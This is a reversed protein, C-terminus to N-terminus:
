LIGLIIKSKWLCIRSLHTLNGFSSLLWMETWRLVCLWAQYHEDRGKCWIEAIFYLALTPDNLNYYIHQCFLQQCCPIHSLLSKRPQNNWSHAHTHLYGYRVFLCAAASTRIAWKGKHGWEQMWVDVEMSPLNQLELHVTKILLHSHDSM